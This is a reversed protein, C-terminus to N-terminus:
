PRQGEGAAEFALERAVVVDPEYRFDVIHRKAGSVVEHLVEGLDALLEPHRHAEIRAAHFRRGAKSRAPPCFVCISWASEWSERIRALASRTPVQRHRRAFGSRGHLRM